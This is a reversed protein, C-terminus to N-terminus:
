PRHKPTARKPKIPAVRRVKDGSPQRQRFAHRAAQKLREEADPLLEVDELRIPKESQKM